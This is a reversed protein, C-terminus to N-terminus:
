RREGAMLVAAKDAVELHQKCEECVLLGERRDAIVAVSAVKSRLEFEDPLLPAAKGNLDQIDGVVACIFCEDQPVRRHTLM